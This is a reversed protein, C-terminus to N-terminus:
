RWADELDLFKKPESDSAMFPFPFPFPFPCLPLPPSLFLPLPLPFPLSAFPLSLFPPGEAELGGWFSIRGVGKSSWSLKMKNNNFMCRHAIEPLGSGDQQSLSVPNEISKLSSYFQTFL